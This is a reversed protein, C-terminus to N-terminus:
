SARPIEFGTNEAYAAFDDAESGLGRDGTRLESVAPAASRAPLGADSPARAVLMEMDDDARSGAALISLIFVVFLVAVFGIALWVM